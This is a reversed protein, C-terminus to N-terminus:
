SGGVSIVEEIWVQGKGETFLLGAIRFLGAVAFDPRKVIVFSTSISVGKDGADQPEGDLNM